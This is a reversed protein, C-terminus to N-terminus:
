ISSVYIQYCLFSGVADPVSNARSGLLCLFLRSFQLALGGFIRALALALGFLCQALGLSLRLLCGAFNFALDILGLVAKSEVADKM